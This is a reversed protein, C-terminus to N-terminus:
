MEKLTEINMSRLEALTTLKWEDDFYDNFDDWDTTNVKDYSGFSWTLIVTPKFASESDLEYGRKELEEVIEDLNSEGHEDTEVKIKMNKM